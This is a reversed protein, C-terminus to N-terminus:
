APGGFLSILDGNAPNSAAGLLGLGFEEEIARLAGYHNGSGAIAGRGKSTNSIVVMPITNGVGEDMTIIVTSDYNTFWTSTLVPDINTKLWADGQQVTGDHMDNLLNPTIWVFSPASSGDLAALLGNGGPYPLVHTACGAGIVDSFYMFPDHKKAYAGSSGGTYCPSPMSEMYATWPIGAASLQGGLDTGSFPGCTTCDTSQGQVSGSDFALYNPLSPHSVGAWSTYSAYTSALSCFYPDASCSGLTAAYGKNEEMIVM